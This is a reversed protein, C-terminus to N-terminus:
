IQTIIRGLIRRTKRKCRSSPFQFFCLDSHFQKTSNVNHGAGELDRFGTIFIQVYLLACFSLGYMVCRVYCLVCEAALHFVQMFCSNNVCAFSSLGGSKKMWAHEPILCSCHGSYMSGYKM